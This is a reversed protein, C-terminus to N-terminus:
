TYESAFVTWDENCILCVIEALVRRTASSSAGVPGSRMTSATFTPGIMAYFSVPSSPFTVETAMVNDSLQIIDSTLSTGGCVKLILLLKLSSCHHCIGNLVYCFCKVSIYTDGKM